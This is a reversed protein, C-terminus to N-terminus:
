DVESISQQRGHCTSGKGKRGPGNRRESNKVRYPIYLTSLANSDRRQMNQNDVTERL